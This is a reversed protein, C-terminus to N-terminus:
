EQDDSNDLVYDVSDSSGPQDWCSAALGQRGQATTDRARQVQKLRRCPPLKLNFGVRQLCSVAESSHTGEKRM